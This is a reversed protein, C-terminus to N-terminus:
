IYYLFYSKIEHYQLNTSCINHWRSYTGESALGQGIIKNPKLFKFMDLIVPGSIRKGASNESDAIRIVGLFVRYVLACFQKRKTWNKNVFLNNNSFTTSVCNSIVSNSFSINKKFEIYCLEQTMLLLLLSLYLLVLKRFRRNPDKLDLDIWKPVCKFLLIHFSVIAISTVIM